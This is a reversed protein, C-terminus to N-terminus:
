ASALCLRFRLRSRKLRAKQCAMRSLAPRTPLRCDTSGGIAAGPHVGSEFSLACAAAAQAIADLERGPAPDLIVIQLPTRLRASENGAIAAANEAAGAQV